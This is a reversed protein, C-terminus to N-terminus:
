RNGAQTAKVLTTKSTTSLLGLTSASASAQDLAAVGVLRAALVEGSAAWCGASSDMHPHTPGDIHPFRGRCGPCPVLLLQM